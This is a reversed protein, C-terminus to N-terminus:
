KMAAAYTADIEGLAQSAAPDFTGQFAQVARPRNKKNFWGDIRDVGQSRVGALHQVIAQRLAGWPGDVIERRVPIPVQALSPGLAGWFERVHGLVKERATAALKRALPIVNERIKKDADKLRMTADSLLEKVDDFIRRFFDAVKQAVRGFVTRAEQKLPEVQIGAGAGIFGHYRGAWYSLLFDHPAFQVLPEQPNWVEQGQWYGPNISRLFYPNSQSVNDGRFVLGPGLPWIGGGAYFPNKFKPFHKALVADWKSQIYDFLPDRLEPRGRFDTFPKSPDAPNGFPWPDKRYQGLVGLSRAILERDRRGMVAMYFYDFVPQLRPRFLPWAFQEVIDLFVARLKKDPASKVLLHMVMNFLNFNFMSVGSLLLEPHHELLPRLLRLIQTYLGAKFLRNKGFWRNAVKDYHGKLEADATMQVATGLWALTHVLQSLDAHRSQDGYVTPKGSLELFKYKNRAFLLVTDRVADAIRKQWEPAANHRRLVEFSTALGLLLGDIQDRSIDSSFGYRARPLGLLSGHYDYIDDHNLDHMKNVKPSDMNGYGRIPLGRIPQIRQGSKRHVIYGDPAGALTMLNYAGTLVRKLHELDEPKGTVGYRFACAALYRGTVIGSDGLGDVFGTVERTRPDVYGREILVHDHLFRRATTEYLDAKAALEALGAASQYHDPRYGTDFPVPKARLARLEALKKPYEKLMQVVTRAVELYGKLRALLGQKDAADARAVDGSGLLLVFIFIWSAKRM